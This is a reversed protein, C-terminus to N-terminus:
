NRVWGERTSLTSHHMDYHRLHLSSDMVLEAYLPGFCFRAALEVMGFKRWLPREEPSLVDVGDMHGDGGVYATGKPTDLTVMHRFDPRRLHLLPFFRDMPPKHLGNFHYVLAVAHNELSDGPQHTIILDLSSPVHYEEDALDPFVNEL